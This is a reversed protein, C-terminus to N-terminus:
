IIKKIMIKELASIYNEIIEFDILGNSLIPLGVIMEMAIKRNFKNTYDFKGAAQKKFLTLFYLLAKESWVLDDKAYLGQIHSYGIFDNPQYFISDATTTDSYIIMKGKETAELNVFGGIGNNLSSNVVVPTKGSTKFLTQNTCRYYKTPKIEFLDGIKFSGIKIQNSKHAELAEKEKKSLECNELNNEKLFNDIRSIKNKEIENIYNEMFLYDVEGKLDVPLKITTNKLAIKTAKENYSFKKSIVKKISTIIYLANKDNLYESQLVSTAGHGDKLYFPTKLYVINQNNSHILITPKGEKNNLVREDLSLYSIIGNNLTAQGYFPYKKEDEVILSKIKLPDIEKQSQWNLIESIKFDKYRVM